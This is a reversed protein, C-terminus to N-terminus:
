LGLIGAADREGLQMARPDGIDISVANRVEDDALALKRMQIIEQVGIGIPRRKKVPILGNAIWVRGPPCSENGVQDVVARAGPVVNKGYVQIAISDHVDHGRGLAAEVYEPTFGTGGFLLWDPHSVM